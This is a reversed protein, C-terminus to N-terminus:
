SICFVHWDVLFFDYRTICTLIKVEENIGARLLTVAVPLGERQRKRQHLNSTGETENRDEVEDFSPSPAVASCPRLLGPAAGLGALSHAPWFKEVGSGSNSSSNNSVHVAGSIIPLPASTSDLEIGATSKTSNAPLLATAAAASTDNEPLSAVATAADAAAAAEPVKRPAPQVITVSENVLAALPPPLNVHALLTELSFVAWASGMCKAVSTSASNM